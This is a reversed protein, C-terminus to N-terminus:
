FLALQEQQIPVSLKIQSQPLEDWNIDELITIGGVSDWVPRNPIFYLNELSRTIAVYVLNEEEMEQDETNGEMPLENSNLIWVTEAEDGKARHITSLTICGTVDEPSFLAKIREEFEALNSCQNGFALYCAELARATDMAQDILYSDDEGAAQITFQLWQELEYLFRPMPHHGLIGRAQRCFQDGMDNGRILAKKNHNLILDICTTVLPATMRSLVLDGPQVMDIFEEPTKNGMVGTIAGLKAEIGPVIQKALQIHSTPCRYSVPLQMELCNFELKLRNFALPLSGAFSFISQRSDGVCILRAGGQVFKRYIDQSAASTDQAEDVCVFQPISLPRLKWLHPIWLLDDFDFIGQNSCQGNSNIIVEMALRIAWYKIAFPIIIGYDSLMNVISQYKFECLTVRVMHTVDMIASTLAKINKDDLRPMRGVAGKESDKVLKGIAAIALRHCKSSDITLGKEFSGTAKMCMAYGYSHVTGVSIRGPLENQMKEAVSKNFAFIRIKTRSPLWHVIGKLTSSKGSGAKAEIAIHRDGSAVAAFIERQHRSWPFERYYNRDKMSGREEITDLIAYYCIFIL